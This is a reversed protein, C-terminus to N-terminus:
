LISLDLTTPYAAECISGLILSYDVLAYSTDFTDTEKMHPRVRVWPFFLPPKRIYIEPIYCAHIDRWSVEPVGVNSTSFEIINNTESLISQVQGSVNFHLLKNQLNFYAYCEYIGTPPLTDFQSMFDCQSNYFLTTCLKGNDNWTNGKHRTERNQEWTDSFIIRNSFSSQLTIISM